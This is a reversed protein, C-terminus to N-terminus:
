LRRPVSNGKQLTRSSAPSCFPIGVWRWMPLWGVRSMNTRVCGRCLCCIFCGKWCNKWEQSHSQDQSWRDVTTWLAIVRNYSATTAWYCTYMDCYKDYVIWVGEGNLNRHDTNTCHKLLIWCSVHATSYWTKGRNSLFVCRTVDLTCHHMCIFQLNVVSAM